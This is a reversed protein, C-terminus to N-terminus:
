VSKHIMWIIHYLFGKKAPTHLCTPSRVIPKPCCHAHEGHHDNISTDCALCKNNVGTSNDHTVRKHNTVFKDKSLYTNCLWANVFANKNATHNQLITKKVEDSHGNKRPELNYIWCDLQKGKKKNNLENLVKQTGILEDEVVKSKTFDDKNFKDSHRRQKCDVAPQFDPFANELHKHLNVYNSKYHLCCSMYFWCVSCSCYFVIRRFVCTEETHDRINRNQLKSVIDFVANDIAQANPKTLKPSHARLFSIFALNVCQKIL